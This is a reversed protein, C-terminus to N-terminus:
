VEDRQPANGAPDLRYIHSAQSFDGGNEQGNLDGENSVALYHVGGHVFHEWDTAGKTDVEQVLRFKAVVDDYQWLSSKAM